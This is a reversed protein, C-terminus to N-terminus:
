MGRMNTPFNSSGGAPVLGQLKNRDLRLEQLCRLNGLAPPLRGTLGNSQLNKRPISNAQLIPDTRQHINVSKTFHLVLEDSKPAQFSSAVVTFIKSVSQKAVVPCFKRSCIYSFLVTSDLAAMNM